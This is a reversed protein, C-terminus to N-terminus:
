DTCTNVPGGAVEGSLLYKCYLHYRQVRPHWPFVMASFWRGLHLEVLPALM